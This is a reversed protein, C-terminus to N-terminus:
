RSSGDELQEQIERKAERKSRERRSKTDPHCIACGQHGPAITKTHKRGLRQM